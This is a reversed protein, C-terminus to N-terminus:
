PVRQQRHGVHDPGVRVLGLQQDAHPGVVDVTRHVGCVIQQGGTWPHGRETALRVVQRAAVAVLGIPDVTRWKPIRDVAAAHIRSRHGAFVARRVEVM